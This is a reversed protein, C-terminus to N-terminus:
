STPATSAKTSITQAATPASASPTSSITHEDNFTPPPITFHACPVNGTGAGAVTSNSLSAGTYEEPNCASSTVGVPAAITFVKARLNAEKGSIFISFDPYPAPDRSKGPCGFTTRSTIPSAAAAADKDRDRAAVVAVSVM